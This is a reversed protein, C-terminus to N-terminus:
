QFIDGPNILYIPPLQFTNQHQGTNRVCALMTIFLPSRVTPFLWLYNQISKSFLSKNLRKVIFDM